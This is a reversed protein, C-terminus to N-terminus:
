LNSLNDALTSLVNTLPQKIMMAMMANFNGDFTFAIESSLEDIEIVDVVLSYDLKSSASELILKNNPIQEKRKLGIEPMGKLTFYFEDTEKLEFKVLSEPMLQEFNKFDTIFDFVEKPSKNVKKRPIDIHM